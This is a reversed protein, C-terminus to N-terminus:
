ARQIRQEGRPNPLSLKLDHQSGLVVGTAAQALEGGGIRHQGVEDAPARFVAEFGLHHHELAGRHELGHKIEHAAAFLAGALVGIAHSEAVPYLAHLHLQLFAGSHEVDRVGVRVFRQDQRHDLADRAVILVIGAAVAAAVDGVGHGVELLGDGIEGGLGFSRHLPGLGVGEAVAEAEGIAHGCTLIGGTATAAGHLGAALLGLGLHQQELLLEVLGAGVAVAHQELGGLQLGVGLEVLLVLGCFGAEAVQAGAQAVVVFQHAVQLALAEAQDGGEVALSKAQQLAFQGGGFGGQLGGAAWLLHHELVTLQHALGAAIFFGQGFQFVLQLDGLELLGLM